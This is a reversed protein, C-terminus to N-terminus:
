RRKVELLFTRVVVRNFSTEVRNIVEYITQDDGGELWVVARLGLLMTMPIILGTSSFTSNVISDGDQFFQSWDVVYDLRSQPHKAPGLSAFEPAVLPSSM